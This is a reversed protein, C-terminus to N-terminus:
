AKIKENISNLIRAKTKRKMVQSNSVSTLIKSLISNTLCGCYKGGYKLDREIDEITFGQYSNCCNLWSDHKLFDNEEKTIQLNCDLLHSHTNVYSNLDSNIILLIPEPDTSVVIFYKPKPPTCDACHMLLVFGVEIDDYDM